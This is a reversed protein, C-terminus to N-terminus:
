TNYNPYKHKSSAAHALPHRHNIQTASNFPTPSHRPPIPSPNSLEPDRDLSDMTDYIMYEEDISESDEQECDDYNIPTDAGPFFESLAAM